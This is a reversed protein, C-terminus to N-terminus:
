CPCYAGYTVIYDDSADWFEDGCNPNGSLVSGGLHDVCSDHEFCDMMYDTDFINCGAGCRGLCSSGGATRYWTWYVLSPTNQTYYAYYKYGPCYCITGDEGYYKKHGQTSQPETPEPGAGTYTNGAVSTSAPLFDFSKFGLKYGVPAKSLWALVKYALGKEDRHGDGREFQTAVHEAQTKFFSIEDADFSVQNGSISGYGEARHVSASISKGGIRLSITMFGDASRDSRVVLRKGGPSAVDHSFTAYVQAVYLIVVFLSFFNSRM